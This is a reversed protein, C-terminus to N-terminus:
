PLTFHCGVRSVVFSNNSMGADSIDEAVPSISNLRFVFMFIASM